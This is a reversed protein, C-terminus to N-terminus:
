RLQGDMSDKLEAIQKQIEKIQRRLEKRVDLIEDKKVLENYYVLKDVMVTTLADIAAQKESTTM